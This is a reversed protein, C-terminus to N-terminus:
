LRHGDRPAESVLTPRQNATPRGLDIWDKAALGLTKLYEAKPMPAGSRKMELLLDRWGPTSRHFLYLILSLYTSFTLYQGSRRAGRHLALAWATDQMRLALHILREYTVKTWAQPGSAPGQTPLRTGLPLEEPLTQAMLAEAAPQDGLEVLALLAANYTHITPSVRKIDGKRTVGYLRQAHRLVQLVRGPESSSALAKLISNLVIIDVGGQPTTVKGVAYMARIAADIREERAKRRDERTPKIRSGNFLISDLESGYTSGIAQALMDEMTEDLVVGARRAMALTRFTDEWRHARIYAELLPLVHWDQFQSQKMQLIQKFAREAMKCSGNRGSAELVLTVLGEHIHVHRSTLVKWGLVIGPMQSM